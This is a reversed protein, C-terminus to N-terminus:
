PKERLICLILRPIKGQNDEERGGGRQFIELFFRINITHICIKETSNETIVVISLQASGEPGIVVGAPFPSSGEDM